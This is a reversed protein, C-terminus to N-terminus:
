RRQNRHLLTFRSWGWPKETGNDINFEVMQYLLVCLLVLLVLVPLSM